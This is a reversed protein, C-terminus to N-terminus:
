RVSVSFVNEQGNAQLQMQKTMDMMIASALNLTHPNQYWNNIEMNILIKINGLEDDVILNVPMTIDFSHDMGMAPGTHTAYGQTITDFDGEIKMYHYGGGMNVPWIMSSHFDENVYNNNVNNLSDLGMTFSINTYTNNELPDSYSFKLTADDDINVFHVDKLLIKEGNQKELEINSILYKLTQINYEDGALNTYPLLKGGTCCSHDPLCEGGNTCGTGCVANIGSVSHTFKIKLITEKPNECSIFGFVIMLLYWNLKM